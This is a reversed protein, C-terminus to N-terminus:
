VELMACVYVHPVFSSAVGKCTAARFPLSSFVRTSGSCPVFTPASSPWPLVADCTTDSLPYSWMIVNSSYPALHSCTTADREPYRAVERETINQWVGHSLIMIGFRNHSLKSQVPECIQLIQFSRVSSSIDTHMDNCPTPARSAGQCSINTLHRITRCHWIWCNSTIGLNWQPSFARDFTPSFTCSFAHGTM